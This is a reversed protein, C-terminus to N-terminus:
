PAHAEADTGLLAELKRLRPAQEHDFRDVLARMGHRLRTLEDWAGQEKANCGSRAVRLREDWADLWTTLEDRDGSTPAQSMSETTRQLLEQKLVRLDAACSGTNQPDGAPWFIQPVISSLGVTVLWAALLWFVAAGAYWGATHRRNQEGLVM